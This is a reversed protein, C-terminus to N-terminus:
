GRRRKMLETLQALHRREEDIIGDIMAHDRLPVFRNMETYYLIADKEADIGFQLADREPMAKQALLQEMREKTFVQGDVHAQLYKEYEGPYSEHLTALGVSTLMGEFFRLHQVEDAALRRLLDRALGDNVSDAAEAYFRLGNREMQVAAEVVDRGSFGVSM